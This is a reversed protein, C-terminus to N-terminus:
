LAQASVAAKTDADGKISMTVAGMSAFFLLMVLIWGVIPVFSLLFVAATGALVWMWTIEANKRIWKSLFAGATICMYIGATFLALAYLAMLVFGLYMGIVSIFLLFIVVPTLITAIFGIGAMKWFKEIVRMSLSLSFGKFAYAVVLASVLMGLFKVLALVGLVALVGAVVGKGEEHPIAEQKTFVVQTGLNAGDAIEADRFSSYMLTSGLATNAGFSVSQGAKISVPGTVAANLTVEDARATLTGAISGQVDVVGGFVVVDGSIQAGPLLIVNGGFVLVDGDVGEHITVHGGAIRVDGAVKGLVDITGGALMLDGSVPANVTIKGGAALLDKEVPAAVNIQGGAFYANESIAPSAPISVFEGAQMKAAHAFALPLSLIVLAVLVFFPLKKM